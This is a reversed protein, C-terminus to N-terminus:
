LNPKEASILLSGGIERVPWLWEAFTTLSTFLPIFPKPILPHLFEHPRASVNIFEEGLLLKKIQWRYFATEDPSAGAIKRIFGVHREMWIQPNLMNPEAFVLRGGPKILRLMKPLSKKLDLHHLVSSGWVVDYRGDHEPGLGAFDETIFSVKSAYSRQKALEILEECLECAIISAGSKSVLETFTGTGCGIELTTSGSNINGAQIILKARREARARGAPTGWGWIKEPDKLLVKAHEKEHILRDNNTTERM